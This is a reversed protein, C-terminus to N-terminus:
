MTIQFVRRDHNKKLLYNFQAISEKTLHRRRNKVPGRKPRNVNTNLM